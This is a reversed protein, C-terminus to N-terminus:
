VSGSLAHLGSNVQPRQQAHGDDGGAEQQAGIGHQDHDRGAADGAGGGRHGEHVHELREAV